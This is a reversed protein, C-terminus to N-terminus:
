IESVSLEEVSLGSRYLEEEGFVRRSRIAAVLVM